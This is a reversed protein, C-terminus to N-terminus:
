NYDCYKHIAYYINELATNRKITKLLIFKEKPAKRWSLHKAIM